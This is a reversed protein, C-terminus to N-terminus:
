KLLELLKELKYGSAQANALLLSIENYCYLIYKRDIEDQRISIEVAAIIFLWWMLDEFAEKNFWLIDQYRNVGLYSLVDGDSLISTLIQHANKRIATSQRSTIQKWWGHHSILLKILTVARWNSREDLGLDNLTSDRYYDVLADLHASLYRTFCGSM